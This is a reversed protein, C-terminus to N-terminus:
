ELGSPFITVSFDQVDRGAISRVLGRDLLFALTDPRGPLRDKAGKGRFASAERVCNERVRRIRPRSERGDSDPYRDDSVLADVDDSPPRRRRWVGPRRLTRRLRCM